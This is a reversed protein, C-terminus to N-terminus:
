SAAVAGAQREDKTAWFAVFSSRRASPDGEEGGAVRPEAAGGANQAGGGEGRPTRSRRRQDAAESDRGSVYRANSVRLLLTGLSQSVSWDILLRLSSGCPNRM